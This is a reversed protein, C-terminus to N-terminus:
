ILIYKALNGSLGFFTHFVDVMDGPRDGIGGAEDDKLLYKVNQM